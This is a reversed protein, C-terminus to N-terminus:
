AKFTAFIKGSKFNGISFMISPICELNLTFWTASNAALTRPNTPSCKRVLKMSNGEAEGTGSTYFYDGNALTEWKASGDFASISIIFDNWAVNNTNELRIMASNYNKCDFAITYAGITPQLLDQIFEKYGRSYLVSNDKYFNDEFRVYSIDGDSTNKVFRNRLNNQGDIYPSSAM